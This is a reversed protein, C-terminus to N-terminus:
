NYQTMHDNVVGATQDSNWRESRRPLAISSLVGAVAQREAATPPRLCADNSYGLYWDLTAYHAKACPGDTLNAAADRKTRHASVFTGDAATVCWGSPHRALCWTAPPNAFYWQAVRAFADLKRNQDPDSM